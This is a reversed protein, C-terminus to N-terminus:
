RRNKHSIINFLTILNILFLKDVNKEKKWVNIESFNDTIFSNGELMDADRYMQSTVICCFPLVNLM